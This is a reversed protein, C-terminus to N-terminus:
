DSALRRVLRSPLSTSPSLNLTTMMLLLEEGWLATRKNMLGEFKTTSQDLWWQTWVIQRAKVHPSPAGRGAAGEREEVPSGDLVHGSKYLVRVPVALYLVTGTSCQVTITCLFPRRGVITVPPLRYLCRPLRSVCAPTADTTNVNVRSM